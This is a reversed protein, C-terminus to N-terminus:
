VLLVRHKKPPPRCPGCIGSELDRAVEVADSNDHAVQQCKSLPERGKFKFYVVISCIIILVVIIAIPLGIDPSTHILPIEGEFVSIPTRSFGTTIWVRCKKGVITDYTGHIHVFAEHTDWPGLVWGNRVDASQEDVVACGDVHAFANEDVFEGLSETKIVITGNSYANVDVIKTTKTFHARNNTPMTVKIESSLNENDSIRRTLVYPVTREPVVRGTYPGDNPNPNILQKYWGNTNDFRTKSRDSLLHGFRGVFKSDIFMWHRPDNSRPDFRSIPVFLKKTNWFALDAPMAEHAHSDGISVGLGYNRSETPEVSAKISNASVTDGEFDVTVDYNPTGKPDVSFSQYQFVTDTNCHSVSGIDEKGECIDKVEQLLPPITEDGVLKELDKIESSSCDVCFNLAYKNGCPHFVEDCTKRLALIGEPFVM